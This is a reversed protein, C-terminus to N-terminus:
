EFEEKDRQQTGPPVSFAYTHLMGRKFFGTAADDLNFLVGMAQLAAKGPWKLPKGKEVDPDPMWLAVISERPAVTGDDAIAPPYKKDATFTVGEIQAVTRTFENKPLNYKVTAPALARLTKVVKMSNMSKFLYAEGSITWAAELLWFLLEPNPMFGVENQWDDTNDVESGGKVKLLSFPISAVANARLLAARYMIPVRASYYVETDPREKDTGSLISWGEDGWITVAKAGDYIVLNQGYLKKKDAM